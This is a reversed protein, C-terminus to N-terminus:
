VNGKEDEKDNDDVGDDPEFQEAAFHVHGAVVVSRTPSSSSQSPTQNGVDYTGHRSRIFHPRAALFASSTGFALFTLLDAPCARPIADDIEVIEAQRHQRHKLADGHFPPCRYEIPYTAPLM